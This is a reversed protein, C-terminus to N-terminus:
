PRRTPPPLFAGSAPGIMSAQCGAPLSRSASGAVFLVSLRRPCTRVAFSRVTRPSIRWDRGSRQSQARGCFLWRGGQGAGAGPLAGWPEESWARPGARLLSGARVDVGAQLGFSRRQPQGPHRGEGLTQGNAGTRDM